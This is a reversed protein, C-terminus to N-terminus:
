IKPWKYELKGMIVYLAGDIKPHGAPYTETPKLVQFKAQPYKRIHEITEVAFFGAHELVVRTLEFM